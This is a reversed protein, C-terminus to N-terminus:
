LRKLYYYIKVITVTMVVTIFADPISFFFNTVAKITPDQIPAILLASFEVLLNIVSSWAVLGFSKKVLLKSERFYSGQCEDDLVAIFPGMSFFILVYFGPVVLLLLGAFFLFSYYLNYLLFTPVFYKLEGSGGHSKKQILVIQSLVIFTALTAIITIFIFLNSEASGGFLPLITEINGLLILAIFPALYTKKNELVEEISTKLFSWFLKLAEM